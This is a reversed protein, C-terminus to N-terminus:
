FNKSEINTIHFKFDLKTDLNKGLYKPSVSTEILANNYYINLVALLTHPIPCQAKGGARKQSQRKTSFFLILSALHSFYALSKQHNRYSIALPPDLPPISHSTPRHMKGGAM